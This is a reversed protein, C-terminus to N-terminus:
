RPKINFQILWPGLVLQQRPGQCLPQEGDHGGVVPDRDNLRLAADASPILRGDLRYVGNSQRLLALRGANGDRGIPAAM